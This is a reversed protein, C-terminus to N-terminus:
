KGIAMYYVPINPNYYGMTFSDKALSTAQFYCMGGSNDIATGGYGFSVAYCASTFTIPFSCQKSYVASGGTIKGWQIILGSDLKVYGNAAISQGPKTKGSVYDAIMKATWVRKTTDTGATLLAATGASYTTNNDTSNITINGAADSTVTTAGTGKIVVSNRVTSDDTLTIKTNGNTTAANAASGSGAYLHTTYHTNTDTPVAWTGDGRLFSAQKGAAPAPVLGASGAASATAATMNSYTTNTSNITINGSADSTVSTAGTGKITVSNRVTSDDTLTIKTNGNTTAANAASGSGAYLHTTYHTNTDTPVAWTGDGRLFSAQKGAAPAPVLGASGAASATAATMNSYTTNTSNITINGSADSTVSTAGTGKITVSNRVTSNDAVSLKTNGNTTTANAASGSGAYMHTTYHTDTDTNPPVQWTGDERLYKTTGATTGPSPVLGSSAGSGSKGFVTKTAFLSKLKSLFYIAGASSLVKM